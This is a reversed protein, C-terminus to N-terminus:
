ARTREGSFCMVLADVLARLSPREAVVGAVLGRESAARATSRGICAVVVGRLPEIGGLAAVLGRVASGSTFTVADCGSLAASALAGEAPGAPVTRYAVIDTVEAGRARLLAPLESHALDSRVLAVRCPLAIPLERGLTQGDPRSAIFAPQIRRGRLAAATTEGIAAVRVVPPQDFLRVARASTLVIWDFGAAIARRLHGNEEPEVTRVARFVAVEAGQERLFFALPEADERTVLVRRGGLARDPM